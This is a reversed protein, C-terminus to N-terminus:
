VKGTRARWEDRTKDLQHALKVAENRELHGALAFYALPEGDKIGMIGCCNCLWFSRLPVCFCCKEAPVFSIREGCCTPFYCGVCHNFCAPCDMFCCVNKIEGAHVSPPGTCFLWQFTDKLRYIGRDYYTKNVWDEGPCIVNPPLCFLAVPYNSEFSNELVYFYQRSKAGNCWDCCLTAFKARHKIIISDRSITQIAVDTGYNEQSDLADSLDLISAEQGVRMAM